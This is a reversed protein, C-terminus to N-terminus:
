CVLDLVTEHARLHTYSVATVLLAVTPPVKPTVPAVVVAPIVFVPSTPVPVKVAVPLAVTPPVKPTVPALESEVNLVEPKAVNSLAATVLLAVTPPVNPNAVPVVTLSIEISPVSTSLLSLEM